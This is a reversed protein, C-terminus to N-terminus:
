GPGRKSPDVYNEADELRQKTKIAFMQCKIQM